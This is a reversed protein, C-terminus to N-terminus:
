ESAPNSARLTQDIAVTRLAAYMASKDFAGIPLPLELSIAGEHTHGATAGIMTLTDLVQHNSASVYARFRDIKNELAAEALVQLLIRGLGQRQRHDVVAIAVEAVTSDNPDRIYRAIGVGPPDPTDITEAAWAFHDFYDIETLYALEAKSLTPKPQLFRLYRSEPSLQKWGEALRQKDKPAIPRIRAPTGDKLVATFALREVFDDVERSTEDSSM